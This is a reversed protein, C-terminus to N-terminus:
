LLIEKVVRRAEDLGFTLYMAGMLAEFADARMNEEPHNEKTVKDVHGNGMLMVSDIDLGKELIKSSMKRNAVFEQKQTTMNGENDSSSFYIHECVVLEVVADGLFELREYSRQIGAENSYSDHILADCFLSLEKDSLNRKLFPPRAIFERVKKRHSEVDM